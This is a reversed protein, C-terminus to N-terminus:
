GDIPHLYVTHFHLSSIYSFIFEYLSPVMKGSHLITQCNPWQWNNQARHTIGTSTRATTHHSENLFFLFFCLDTCVIVWLLQKTQLHNKRSFRQSIPPIQFHDKLPRISHSILLPQKIQWLNLHCSGGLLETDRFIVDYVGKIESYTIPQIVTVSQKEATHHQHCLLKACGAKSDQLSAASSIM